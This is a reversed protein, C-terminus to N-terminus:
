LKGWRQWMDTMGKKKALRYMRLMIKAQLISHDPGHDFHKLHALEHALGDIVQAFYKRVSVTKGKANVGHNYLNITLTFNKPDYYHLQAETRINKTVPVRFDKVTKLKDLNVLGHACLIFEHLFDTKKSYTIAM